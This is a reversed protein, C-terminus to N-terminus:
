ERFRYKRASQKGTVHINSGAMVSTAHLYDYVLKRIKYEIKKHVAAEGGSTRESKFQEFVPSAHQFGLRPTSKDWTTRHQSIRQSQNM